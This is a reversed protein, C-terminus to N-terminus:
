QGIIKDAVVVGGNMPAMNEIWTQGVVQMDTKKAVVLYGRKGAKDVRAGWADKQEGNSVAPAKQQTVCGVRRVIGLLELPLEALAEVPGAAPVIKLEPEVQITGAYRIKRRTKRM